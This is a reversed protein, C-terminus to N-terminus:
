KQPGTSASAWPAVQATREPPVVSRVACTAGHADADVPGWFYRWLFGDAVRRPFAVAAAVTVVVGGLFTALWARAPDRDEPLEM